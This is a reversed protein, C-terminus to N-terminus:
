GLIKNWKGRYFVALKLKFGLRNTHTKSAHSVNRTHSSAAVMDPSAAFRFCGDATARSIPTLDDAAVVARITM